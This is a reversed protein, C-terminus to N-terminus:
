FGTSPRFWILIKNPEKHTRMYENLTDDFKQITKYESMFNLKALVEKVDEVEKFDFALYHAASNVNDDFSLKFIMGTDPDGFIDNNTEINEKIVFHHRDKIQKLIQLSSM